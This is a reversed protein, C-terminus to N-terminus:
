SEAYVTSLECGGKVGHELDNSVEAKESHSGTIHVCRYLCVRTFFNIQFFSIKKFIGSMFSEAEDESERVQGLEM